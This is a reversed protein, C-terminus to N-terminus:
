FDDDREKVITEKMECYVKLCKFRALARVNKKYDSATKESEKRKNRYVKLSWDEAYSILHNACCFLNNKTKENDKFFSM